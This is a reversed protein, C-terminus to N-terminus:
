YHLCRCVLSRRETEAGVTSKPFVSFFCLLFSSISLIYYIPLKQVSENTVQSISANFIYRANKLYAKALAKVSRDNSTVLQLIGFGSPATEVMEMFNIKFAIGTDDELILAYPSSSGSYIASRIAQLHSLTVVLERISNKPRGCLATIIIKHSKKINHISASLKSLEQIENNNENPVKPIRTRKSKTLSAITSDTASVCSDAHSMEEPIVINAETVAEVRHYHRFGYFRLQEEMHMRRDLSRDLNIFFVQFEDNKVLEHERERNVSDLSSLRMYDGDDPICIALRVIVLVIALTMSLLQHAM